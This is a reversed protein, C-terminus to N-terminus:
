SAILGQIIVYWTVLSKMVFTDLFLPSNFKAAFRRVQKALNGSRASASVFCAQVSSGSVPHLNGCSYTLYTAMAKTKLTATTKLSGFSCLSRSVPFAFVSFSSFLARIPFEPGTGGNHAPFFPLFLARSLRLVLNRSYM